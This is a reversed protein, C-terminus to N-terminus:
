EIRTAACSFSLFPNLFTQRPHPSSAGSSDLMFLSTVVDSFADDEDNRELLSLECAFLRFRIVIRM